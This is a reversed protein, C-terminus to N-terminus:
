SKGRSCKIEEFIISAIKKFTYKKILTDNLHITQQNNDLLIEKLKDHLDQSSGSQFFIVPFDAFVEKFVTIDSILAKTGLLMAELPPYGFGEYLSPQVLLASEALLKWKEDNSIYGSFTIGQDGLMNLRKSTKKDGSRFNNHSGIIILEYNLGEKKCQLFADLLINLGKHKKINGIFIINKKKEENNGSDTQFPVNVANSANIVNVEEGLFYKIRSRSFESVTFITKSLRAARKYFYLRIILGSKTVLNPMDLFIIDHITSYVPVRIGNPINFYPTYYLDGSNIKKQIAKPFTFTDRISFPKITCHLIKAGSDESIQFLQKKDGLLFIAAGSSLFFPLIGKFYAEIGGSSNIHRCDITIIM